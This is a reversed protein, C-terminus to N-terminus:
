TAPAQCNKASHRTKNDNNPNRASHGSQKKPVFEIHARKSLKETFEEMCAAYCYYLAAINQESFEDDYFSAANKAVCSQFYQYRGWPIPDPAADLEDLLALGVKQLAVGFVIETKRDLM